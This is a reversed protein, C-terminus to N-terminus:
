KVEPKGSLDMDVPELITQFILTANVAVPDNRGLDEAMKVTATKNSKM